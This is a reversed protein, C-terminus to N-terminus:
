APRPLPLPEDTEEIGALQRRRDDWNALATAEWATLVEDLVTLEGTSLGGQTAEFIEKLCAEQDHKSLFRFWPLADAAKGRSALRLLLALAIHVADHHRKTSIVVDDGDRRRLVLDGREIEPLLRGSHQLFESLTREGINPAM